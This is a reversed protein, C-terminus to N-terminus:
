NPWLGHETDYKLQFFVVLSDKIPFGRDSVVFLKALTALNFKLILSHLINPPM